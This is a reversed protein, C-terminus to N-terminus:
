DVRNVKRGQRYGDIGEKLISILRQRTELGKWGMHPTLIVNPLTFLPNDEAPPETEQVDLGAGAIRKDQLAKILELEDILPGRSTNIICATPKMKAITDANIMHRTADTLPCHLSLYDSEKLVEDLSVQVAGHPLDRTSRNYVLVRMDLAIGIKIMKQGVNGAGIVGLTKGNLETHSVLLSDTFNRRDGNALMKLQVQMCSSLNLMLMAATHAVRESSYAPINCVGISRERCAAVDINNYGTGAECILKVSTPLAHIDEASMPLEKSVIIEVGESYTQYDAKVCTDHILVEDSAGGLVSYDVTGDFNIKAGNLVVIKM